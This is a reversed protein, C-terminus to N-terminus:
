KKAPAKKEAGKKAPAAAAPAVEEAAAPVSVTIVAPNERGGLVVSVGSPLAIDRVHM